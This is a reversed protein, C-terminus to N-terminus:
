LHKVLRVWTYSETWGQEQLMARLHPRAASTAIQVKTKGQTILWVEAQHLMAPLHPLHADAVLPRSITGSKQSSTTSGALFGVVTEEYVFARAWSQAGSLRNLLRQGWSPFFGDERSGQRALLEPATLEAEIARFIPKDATTLPRALLNPDARATDPVAPLPKELITYQDFVEFGQKALNGLSATNTALVTTSVHPYGAQALHDLRKELLARGIGRRRYDPHVMLNALEMQKRGLYGGCGVIRGDVEAVFIAWKYGALRTFLKFPIMRGRTIMRIQQTFSDATQGRAKYDEAFSITAISALEDVDGAHFPRIKVSM